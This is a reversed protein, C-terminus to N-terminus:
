PTAAPMMKLTNLNVCSIQGISYKNLPQWPFMLGGKSFAMPAPTAEPSHSSIRANKHTTEVNLLAVGKPKPDEKNHLHLM